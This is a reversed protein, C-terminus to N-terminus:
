QDQKNFKTANKALLEWTSIACKSWTYKRALKRANEGLEISKESAELVSCIANAISVPNEPDFLIANDELVEPMPGRNSSLVPLGAAMAELLTIPMNECSSAFIFVDAKSLEDCIVANPVFDVQEVFNHGPDFKKIADNVRKISSRSGGGVLRLRIDRGNLERARAVAEVVHWQHKYPAANSVYLFKIPEYKPSLCRGIGASFFREDIGHPVIEYKNIGALPAIISAAHKTLFISVTSDRLRRLQIIRLLELRLRAKSPWPYRQMEGPEYSLMDQSLTVSPQFTCVSGADTNFMVQVGQKRAEASLRFRQWIIQHFISKRSAYVPHKILWDFDPLMDLLGVDAWLHVTEIGQQRPDSGAFLGKIHAIAGGSRNRSADVGIVVRRGM